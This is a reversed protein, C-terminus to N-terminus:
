HEYGTTDDFTMLIAMLFNKYIKDDENLPEKLDGLEKLVAYQSASNIIDDALKEIRSMHPDYSIRSKSSKKSKSAM